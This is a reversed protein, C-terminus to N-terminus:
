TRVFSQRQPTSLASCLFLTGRLQTAATQGALLLLTQYFFALVALFNNLISSSVIRVNATVFTAPLREMNAVGTNRKLKSRRAQLTRRTPMRTSVKANEAILITPLASPFEVSSAPRTERLPM